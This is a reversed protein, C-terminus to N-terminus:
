PWCGLMGDRAVGGEDEGRGDVAGRARKPAVGRATQGFADGHREDAVPKDEGEVAEARARRRTAPAERGVTAVAQEQIDGERPHHASPPTDRSAGAPVRGIRQSCARGHDSVSCCFGSPRSCRRAQAHPPHRHLGERRVPGWRGLAAQVRQAADVFYGNDDFTPPLSLTRREVISPDPVRRVNCLHSGRGLLAGSM